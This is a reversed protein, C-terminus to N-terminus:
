YYGNIVSKSVILQNSKKRLEIFGFAGTWKYFFNVRYKVGRKYLRNIFIYSPTTDKLQSPNLLLYDNSVKLDRGYIKNLSCEKFYGSTDIIVIPVNKRKGFNFIKQTAKSSMATFVIECNESKTIQGNVFFYFASFFITLLSKM